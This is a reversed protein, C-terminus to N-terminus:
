NVTPRQDDDKVIHLGRRRALRRFRAEALAARWRHWASPLRSVPRRGLYLWAIATAACIGAFGALDKSSLYAVFGFLVGLWLFWRARLPLVFFLYIVADGSVTAFAAILIVLLIRQGQMLQFPVAVAALGLADAALHVTAAVVAAGVAAWALLSWFRRRGLRRRVDVGFMYVIFLELLFWLSPPGYGVAVYTALQWVFGSRWVAPSLRLLAPLLATPTFFQMAFTVFLAALLAILDRPPPGGFGFGLPTYTPSGRFPPRSSM